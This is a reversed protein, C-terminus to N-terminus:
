AAADLMNDIFIGYGTTPDNVLVHTVAGVLRGDQLVPSGSMGQVIGGTAELLAPDTVRLLMNRGEARDSPYLKLIEVSYERVTEGSVNSLIVAEGTHIQSRDAVPLETGAWGAASRGFIGSQTNAQLSGLVHDEQFAGKLQGPDGSKGKKVSVVQAELATGSEMPLLTGSSDSVGHGLAGFRGSKPDYYTVTGIGAIGDRIYVGLRRVGESLGPEVSITQEKGNRSIRLELVGSSETVADLVAQASDVPVGNIELIRDGKRLGASQVNKGLDRDIDVVTVAGSTMELGIARGVPILTRDAAQATLCLLLLALMLIAAQKWIKKMLEEGEKYITGCAPVANIHRFFRFFTMGSILM